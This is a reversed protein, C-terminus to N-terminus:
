NFMIKVCVTFLTQNQLFDVLTSALIDFFTIRKGFIHSIIFLKANKTYKQSYKETCIVAGGGVLDM